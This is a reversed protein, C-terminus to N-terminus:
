VRAGNPVMMRAHSRNWGAQFRELVAQLEPNTRLMLIEQRLKPNEVAVSGDPRTKIAYAYRVLGHRAGFDRIACLWTRTTFQLFGQASSYRNRAKANFRSEQWAIAL